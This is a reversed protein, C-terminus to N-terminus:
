LAKIERMKKALKRARNPTQKAWLSDLMEMSALKYNKDKLAQIMKKFKLVGNVGLQYSMELLIEKTDNEIDFDLNLELENYKDNLRKHLLLEAESKTIPLLTGYGITPKGLTDNYVNGRFGEEDKIRQILDNM